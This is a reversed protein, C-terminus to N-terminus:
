VLFIFILYSSFFLILNTSSIVSVYSLVAVAQVQIIVQLCLRTELFHATAQVVPLYKFYMRAFHVFAHAANLITWLPSFICWACVERLRLQVQLSELSSCALCATSNALCFMFLLYNVHKQCLNLAFYRFFRVSDISLYDILEDRCNWWNTWSFLATGM